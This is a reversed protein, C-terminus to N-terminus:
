SYRTFIYVKIYLIKLFAFQSFAYFTFCKNSKVLHFHSVQTFVCFLYVHGIQLCKLGSRAELGPWDVEAQAPFHWM